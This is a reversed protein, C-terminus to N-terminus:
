ANSKSTKSTRDRHPDKVRQRFNQPRIFGATAHRFGSVLEATTCELDQKFSTRINLLALPLQDVWGIGSPRILLAKLQRHLREVMGNAQPHYATTRIRRSGLTRTLHNFLGSEFQPGRDITITDPAGFRSVWTSIFAKAVSDATVDRLPVAEPWRTFRDIM